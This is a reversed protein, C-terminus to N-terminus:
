QAIESVDITGLDYVPVEYFSNQWLERQEPTYNVPGGAAKEHLEKLEAPLFRMRQTKDSTFEAPVSVPVWISPAQANKKVDEETIVLLSNPDPAGGAKRDAEEIVLDRYVKLLYRQKKVLSESTLVMMGDVKNCTKAVLTTDPLQYVDFGFRQTVDGGNLKFGIAFEARQDESNDAKRADTCSSLMLVSAIVTFLSRKM